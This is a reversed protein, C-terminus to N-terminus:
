TAVQTTPLPFDSSLLDAEDVLSVPYVHGGSSSINHQLRQLPQLHLVQLLHLVEDSSYSMESM